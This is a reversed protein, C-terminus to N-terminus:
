ENGGLELLFMYSNKSWPSYQLGDTLTTFAAAAENTAQRMGYAYGKHYLVAWRMENTPISLSVVQAGVTALNPTVGSDYMSSLESYLADIALYSKAWIAYSGTPSDTMIQQCTVMTDAELSERGTILLIKYLTHNKLIPMVTIDNGSPELVTVTNTVEGLVARYLGTTVFYNTTPDLLMFLSKGESVGLLQGRTVQTTVKQQNPCTIVVKSTFDLSLHNTSYPISFVVPEYPYITIDAGIAWHLGGCFIYGYLFLRM